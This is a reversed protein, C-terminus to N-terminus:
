RRAAAKKAPNKRAAARTQKAAVVPTLVPAPEDEQDLQEVDAPEDDGPWYAVLNHDDAQATDADPHLHVGSIARPPEARPFATLDVLYTGDQYVGDVHTILATTPADDIHILVQDGVAATKETM